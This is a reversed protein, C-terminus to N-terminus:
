LIGAKEKLDSVRQEYEAETLIGADYLEKIALLNKHNHKTKFTSVVSDGYFYVSSLITLILLIGGVDNEKGVGGFTLLTACVGVLIHGWLLKNNM